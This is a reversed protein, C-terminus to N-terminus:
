VDRHGLYVGPIIWLYILPTTFLLQFLLIYRVYKFNQTVHALYLSLSFNAQPILKRGQRPIRLVPIPSLGTFQSVYSLFITIVSVEQIERSTTLQFMKFQQIPGQPGDSNQVQFNNQKPVNIIEWLSIVFSSSLYITIKSNKERNNKWLPFYKKTPNKFQPRYLSKMSIFEVLHM